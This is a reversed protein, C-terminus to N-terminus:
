PLEGEDDNDCGKNSNLFPSPLGGENENDGEDDDDNDCDGMYLLLKVGM